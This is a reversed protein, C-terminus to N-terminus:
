VPVGVDAQRGAEDGLVQQVRFPEGVDAVDLVQRVVRDGAAHDVEIEVGCCPDDRVHVGALRDQRQRTHMGPAVLQERVLGDSGDAIQLALLEADKLEALAAVEEERDNRSLDPEVRV